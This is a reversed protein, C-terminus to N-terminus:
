DNKVTSYLTFFKEEIKNVDFDESYAIRKAKMVDEINNKHQQYLHNLSKAMEDIDSVINENEIDKIIETIGGGDKFVLTPKGLHLCEVAVLGFPESSSPFVCVNMASQYDTVNTKFGAFVVKSQYDQKQVYEELVVKEAGDGVLLLAVDDKGQQFSEFAKILYDVRKWKIFRSTTGIIFKNQLVPFDKKAVTSDYNPNFFVGNYIVTHNKNVVGMEEWFEKTYYSNSSISHTCKNLFRVLLSNKVKFSLNSNRGDVGASHNTYIIKAKSFSIAEALAPKFIQIHAIDYRNVIKVIERYKFINLEFPKIEVYYIPINLKTIRKNSVKNEAQCCLISVELNPNNLQAQTLYYLFAEIGGFLFDHVVHIVKVKSM